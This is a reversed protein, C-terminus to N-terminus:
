RSHHTYFYSVVGLAGTMLVFSPISAAAEFRLISFGFARSSATIAYPAYFVSYAFLMAAPLAIVGIYPYLLVSSAIMIAGTVGNAIHWIIHNTISYLQLHMAGFREVFFAIAIASWMFVGVFETKSGILKLLLDSTLAVGIVGACLLGQALRMGRRAVALGKTTEGSAHMRALEPLKSYFPAQSIQSVMTVLRIALLYSALQGAPVLQSYILGSSQIVGHSMLVGVGSRWASPWLVRLVAVERNAPVRKLYPFRRVLLARNAAAGVMVWTQYSIVLALISGHCALVTFSSLLQAVGVLADLRKQAAVETMGQLAVSYANGVIAWYSGGLVVVWAFWMAAPEATREIPVSLAWTGIASFLVVSCLALRPYVWRLVGFLRGVTAACDVSGPSSVNKLGSRMDAMAEVPAGSLAYSFLRSFTPALGLDLLVTLTLITSFMLWVAVEAPAFRHLVLPLVVVVSSLRVSLSAWTMLTPSEWIRRMAVWNGTKM